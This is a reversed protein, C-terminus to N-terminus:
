NAPAVRELEAFFNNVLITASAEEAIDTMVTRAMFFRQADSSVDYTFDVGAVEIDDPLTFLRRPVGVDLDDTGRLAVAYMAHDAGLFFLERGDRSWRPATGGQRSISWQPSDDGPFRRVYVQDSGTVNSVFAFWRGDASLEPKREGYGPAALVPRPVSDQGLRAAYIDPNSISSGFQFLLENGSASATMTIAGGIALRTVLISREDGSGDWPKAFVTVGSGRSSLFLVTRGDALWRPERDEFEDITLRSRPGQDLQKVFIDYGEEARERVALKTDDPSLSWGENNDGRDFTWGPDVPRVEGARTVWVLEVPFRAGGGKAYFLKGKESVSYYVVDEDIPV